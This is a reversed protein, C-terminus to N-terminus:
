IVFNFKYNKYSKGTLLYKKITSRDIKLTKSCESISSFKLNINNYQNICLIEVKESVLNNTDRLFRINNKIEYPSPLNFLNKFELEFIIIEEKIFIANNTTLKNLNQKIKNILIIGEEIRHYGFYIINVLMSWLKFDIIKKSNLLQFENKQKSIIPIIINKIKSINTIELVCMSDSNPRNKRPSYINLNGTTLFDQIKKLLELEKVANEFKLRPTTKSYSFSADGDIFGGLWYDTIIINTNTYILKKKNEYYYDIIKLKGESTLHSKNKILIVAKEFNLFQFYKSSNLHVFNFIPLIINILSKQDNIFFNCKKGSISIHGCQLKNKIFYLVNVDDIHLGIQFTIILSNYKNNKFNRLSINFNGEADTFGVLWELFHKELSFKNKSDLNLYLKDINNTNFSTNHIKKFKFFHNYFYKYFKTPALILGHLGTSAFFCSGYVSDAISFGAEKYEYAQLATFIIALIITFLAGIITHKRNGQLLAHHSYTIFAGSSLLIITNLLPIAFPDLAQIGFPPWCGGIEIAPALSSHFYAWFVSLFAFVESIVFLAFGIVLSKQVQFTHDGLYTGEIIVDRFWLNMLVATLIFGLLLLLGGNYFGHFYM